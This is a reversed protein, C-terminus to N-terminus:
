YQIKKDGPVDQIFLDIGKSKLYDLDEIDKDDVFVKKSLSRKGESQHMNGINVRKLEVGMEVLKRVDGPTKCVLFIKQDPSAKDIIKATRELTFFRTDIGQSSAVIAMLRKQIDNDSVEDNAVVILNAGLTNVWTVGVQGHILRNDIRTLLINDM